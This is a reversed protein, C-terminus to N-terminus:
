PCPEGDGCGQSVGAAVGIADQVGAEGGSCDWDSRIWGGASMGRAWLAMDLIDVPDPDDSCTGTLDSSTFQLPLHAIAINGVCHSTVRADLEGFGGIRDWQFRITGDPDTRGDQREGCCTCFNHTDPGVPVLTVSTSCDVVPVDFADRLTVSVTLVDGQYVSAGGPHFRFQCPATQGSVEAGCRLPDIFGTPGPSRLGADASAAGLAILLLTFGPVTRHVRARM